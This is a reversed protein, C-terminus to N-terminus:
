EQFGLNWKEESSCYLDGLRDRGSGVFCKINFITCSAAVYVPFPQTLFAWLRTNVHTFFPPFWIGRWAGQQAPTWMSRLRFVHGLAEDISNQLMIERNMYWYTDLCNRQVVCSYLLNLLLFSILSAPWSSLTSARALTARTEGSILTGWDM